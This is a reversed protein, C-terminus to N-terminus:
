YKICPMLAINRPRTAGQGGFWGEDRIGHNFGSGNTGNVNYDYDYGSATADDAGLGEFGVLWPMYVYNYARDSKLLLTGKQSSGFVRAPDVGRGDDAGRIFEGRLDPLNFTTTGDGVGYLEGIAAFLAAYVSRSLEAGNAKLYGDPPSSGAFWIITGPPNREGTGGSQTQPTVAEQGFFQTSM